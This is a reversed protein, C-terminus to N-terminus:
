QRRSWRQRFKRVWLRAVARFIQQNRHIWQWPRVWIRRSRAEAPDIQQFNGRLLVWLRRVWSRRVWSRARALEVRLRIQFYPWQFYPRRFYSRRFYPRRCLGFILHNMPRWCGWLRCIGFKGWVMLRQALVRKYSGDICRFAFRLLRTTDAGGPINLIRGLSFQLRSFPRKIRLLLNRDRGESKQRGEFM